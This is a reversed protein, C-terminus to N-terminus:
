AVSEVEFQRLKRPAPWDKDLPPIMLYVVLALAAAHWPKM